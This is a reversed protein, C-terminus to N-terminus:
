DQEVLGNEKRARPCGAVLAQKATIKAKYGRLWLISQTLIAIINPM